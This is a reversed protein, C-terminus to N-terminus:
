FGGEEWMFKLQDLLTVTGERLGMGTMSNVVVVVRACHMLHGSLRISGVIATCENTKCTLTLGNISCM